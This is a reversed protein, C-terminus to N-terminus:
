SVPCSLNVIGTPRSFYLGSASALVLCEVARTGQGAAARAGCWALGRSWSRCRASSGFAARAAGLCSAEGSEAEVADCVELRQPLEDALTHRELFEGRTALEANARSESSRSGLLAPSAADDATKRSRRRLRSSASAIQGRLCASDGCSRKGRRTSSRPALSTPNAGSMQRSARVATAGTGCTRQPEM